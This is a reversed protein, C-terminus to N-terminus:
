SQCNLCCFSKKSSVDQRVLPRGCRVCPEGERDYVKCQSDYGGTLHDGSFLPMEMYGGQHAATQLVHLMSLFLRELEEQHLQQCRRSPLLGAEFCIEDSYCNGIGSIVSQDVLTSKLTGRNRQLLLAFDNFSFEPELPEPGLKLLLREVDLVDYLHLYGLRLGIFFLHRNGWSITIQVTREPRDDGSGYYMMGGLMLHLVLVKTTNLHFLLHKARREITYISAGILQQQFFEVSTNISKERGVEVASIPIGTIRPNLLLRYNEMEPLEPM